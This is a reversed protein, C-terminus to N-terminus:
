LNSFFQDNQFDNQCLRTPTIPTRTLYHKSLHKNRGRHGLSASMNGPIKYNHGAYLAEDWTCFKPGISLQIQKSFHYHRLTPVNIDAQIQPLGLDKQSFCGGPRDYIDVLSQSDTYQTHGSHGRSQDFVEVVSSVQVLLM